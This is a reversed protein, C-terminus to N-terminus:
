STSALPHMFNKKLSFILTHWFHNALVQLLALQHGAEAVRIDCLEKSEAEEWPRLKWQQDHFSQLGAQIAEQFIRGVKWERDFAGYQLIHGTSQEEEM